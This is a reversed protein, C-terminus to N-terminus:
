GIGRQEQKGVGKEEEEGMGQRGIGKEEEGGESETGGVGGQSVYAM